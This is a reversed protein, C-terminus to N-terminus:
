NRVEYVIWEKHYEVLHLNPYREGISRVIDPNNINGSWKLYYPNLKKWEATSDIFMSFKGMTIMNDVENTPIPMGETTLVSVVECNKSVEGKLQLEFLHFDWASKTLEPARFALMIQNGNSGIPCGKSLIRYLDNKSTSETQLILAHKSISKANINLTNINVYWFSFVITVTSFIKLSQSSAGFLLSLSLALLGLSPYLLRVDSNDILTFYTINSLLTIALAIQTKNFNSTNKKFTTLYAIISMPILLILAIFNHQIDFLIKFFREMSTLNYSWLDGTASISHSLVQQFNNVYWIVTLLFLLLTSIMITIDKGSRQFESFKSSSRNEFIMMLIFPWCFIVTNTKVLTALTILSIVICNYTLKSLTKKPLVVFAYITLLIIVFQLNEVYNSKSIGNVLNVGLFCYGFLYGASKSNLEKAIAYGLFVAIAVFVLQFFLYVTNLDFKLFFLLAPFQLLWVMLPAKGQYDQTFLLSIWNGVNHEKLEQALKLSLLGYQSLDDQWIREDLLVFLILPSFMLSINAWQPFRHNSIFVTIKEYM